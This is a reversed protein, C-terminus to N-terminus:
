VQLTRLFEVVKFGPYSKKEPYIDRYYCSWYNAVRTEFTALYDANERVFGALLDTSRTELDSAVIEAIDVVYESALQVIYPIIWAEEYSVLKQLCEQRFYGDCHRTGLCTLVIREVSDSTNNQGNRLWAPDYYVRYPVRLRESRHTVTFASLPPLSRDHAALGLDRVV